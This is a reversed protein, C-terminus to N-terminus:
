HNIGSRAPDALVVRGVNNSEYFVPSTAAKAPSFSPLRAARVVSADARGGPQSNLEISGVIVCFLARNRARSALRARACWARLGRNAPMRDSAARRDRLRSGALRM